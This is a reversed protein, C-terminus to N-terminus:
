RTNTKVIFVLFGISFKLYRSFTKMFGVHICIHKLPILYGM